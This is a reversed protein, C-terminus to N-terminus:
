NETFVIGSSLEKLIKDVTGLTLGKRKGNEIENIYSRQARNGFVRESLDAESLGMAMRKDKVFKAFSSLTENETNNETM